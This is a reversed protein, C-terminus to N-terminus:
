PLPRPAFWSWIDATHSGIFCCHGVGPLETYRVEFGRGTLDDRSARAGAVNYDGSGILLDVPIHRAAMASLGYGPMPDAAASVNAAAFLAAGEMAVRFALYGGQSYGLLFIRHADAGGAVLYGHAALALTVDRNASAPTTYADWDVGMPASGPIAIPVLVAVGNADAVSILGSTALFNSATDGNGHLAVLGPGGGHFSSPVYLVAQRTGISVTHTGTALSVPGADAPPPGADPPSGADVPTGSDVPPTIADCRGTTPLCQQVTGGTSTPLDYCAYGTRCGGDCPAGCFASGSASTRVCYGGPGCQTSATCTTCLLDAPPPPSSVDVISVADPAASADSAIRADSPAVGADGTPDIIIGADQGHVRADRPSVDTMGVVEGADCGSACAAAALFLSYLAAILVNPSSPRASM